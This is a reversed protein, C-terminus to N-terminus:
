LTYFKKLGNWNQMKLQSAFYYLENDSMKDKPTLVVLGSGGNGRPIFPPNQITPECFSSICISKKYFVRDGNKPTVMGLFSEDYFGNTIFRVNGEKYSEYSGSKANTVEFLDIVKKM